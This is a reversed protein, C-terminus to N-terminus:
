YINMKKSIMLAACEKLSFQLYDFIYSPKTVIHLIKPITLM